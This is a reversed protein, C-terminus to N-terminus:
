HISLGQERSIVVALCCDDHASLCNVVYVCQPQSLIAAMECVVNEYANEQNSIQLHRNFNWQTGFPRIFLIGDNTWIIAQRRGPSFGNDSGVLTPNDAYIYTM